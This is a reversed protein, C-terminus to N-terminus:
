KKEEEAPVRVKLGTEPTWVNPDPKKGITKHTGQFTKYAKMLPNLVERYKDRGFKNMVIKMFRDDLAPNDALFVGEKISKNTSSMLLMDDPDYWFDDTAARVVGTIDFDVKKNDLDYYSVNSFLRIKDSLNNLGFYKREQLELYKNVIKKGIEPTYEKDGLKDVFRNFVKPINNIIKIDKSLSYGMAKEVDMTQPRMGTWGWIEIDNSNLPFGSATRGLAYGRKDESSLADARKDFWEASGPALASAIEKGGAKMKDWTIEWEEGPIEEWLPRGSESQNAAVNMIAEWIFKRNTYPGMISERMGNFAEDIEFQSLGKGALATALALRVPAKIFDYADFSTSSVFRALIRPKGKSIKVLQKYKTEDIGKDQLESIEKNFLKSFGEQQVVKALKPDVGKRILQAEISVDELQFPQLHFRTSSKGWDPAVANIFRENSDTINNTENNAYILAAIGGGTTLMTTLRTLGGAAQKINKNKFIGSVLDNAGLMFINKSTRVIESPFLAYTGVPFRSLAKAIPFADGYSPMVARVRKSAESFIKDDSWNPFMWKLTDREIRHAAIKSWSDPLGYATGFVRMGSDYVNEVKSGKRGTGPPVGPISLNSEILEAAVDTEIVGQNKLKVLEDVAAKNNAFAQQILLRVGGYAHKITNGKLSSPRLLYGNMAMAQVAGGLNLMYAPHDLITQGAQGFAAVKGMMKMLYNGSTGAWLDTGKSIIDAMHQTTYMDKLILSEGYERNMYESIPLGEKKAAARDKATIKRDPDALRRGFKGITENVMKELSADVGGSRPGKSSFATRKKFLLPILGGLNIVKDSNENAFKEISKLFEIESILMNQNTLTNVIKTYPTKIEGLLNLIEKDMVKRKRLVQSSYEGLGKAIDKGDFIQTFWGKEERTLNTVLHEIVGDIRNKYEQESEGKEKKVKVKNIFYNRANDVKETFENTYKQNMYDRISINAQKAAARDKATPTPRPQLAKRINELYKANYTAEYNRTFYVDGKSIGLGIKQDGKLGLLDNMTDENRQIIGYLKNLSEQMEPHIRRLVNGETDKIEMVGENIAFDFDKNTTQTLRKAKKIDRLAKRVELRIGRVRRMRAKTAEAIPKPLSGTTTLMRAGFTNVNGLREKVKHRQPILPQGGVPPPDEGPPTVKPPPPPPADGENTLFKPIPGEMAGGEPSVEVETVVKESPTVETTTEIQLDGEEIPRGTDSLEREKIKRGEFSTKSIPTLKINALEFKNVIEAIQRKTTGEELGLNFIGKTTLANNIKVAENFIYEKTSGKPIYGSIILKDSTPALPLPTWENSYSPGEDAIEGIVRTVIPKTDPKNKLKEIEDSINAHKISLAMEDKKARRSAAWRNFGKGLVYAGTGLIGGVGLGVLTAEGTREWDIQKFWEMFNAPSELNFLGEKEAVKLADSMYEDMISEKFIKDIEKQTPKRGHEKAFFETASKKAETRFGQAEPGKSKLMDDVIRVIVDRNMVIEEPSKIFAEMHKRMAKPVPQGLALQQEYEAKLKPSAMQLQMHLSQTLLDATTSWSAGVLPAIAARWKNSLIRADTLFKTVSERSVINSIEKLAADNGKAAKLAVKRPIDFESMLKKQVSTVPSYKSAIDIIGEKIKSKKLQGLLLHKGAQSAAKGGLTRALLQFVKIAVAPALMTPDSITHYAGRKFSDKDWDTRMEMNIAKRWTDKIEDPFESAKSLTMGLSTLDFFGKSFREQLWEGYNMKTGMKIDTPSGVLATEGFTEKDIVIDAPLELASLPGKNKQEYDYIIKGWKNWEPDIALEAMTREYPSQKTRKKTQWRPKVTLKEYRDMGSPDFGVLEPEATSVDPEEYVGLAKAMHEAHPFKYLSKKEDSTKTFLDTIQEVFTKAKTPLETEVKTKVVSEPVAIEEFGEFIDSYDETVKTKVETEVEPVSESAEEFGEFIDSYDETVESIPKTIKPVPESTEEFGKFIDSHDVIPSVPVVTQTEFGEFIDSDDIPM